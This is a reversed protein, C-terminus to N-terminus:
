LAVSQGHDILWERILRELGDIDLAHDVDVIEGDIYATEPRDRLRRTVGAALDYLVKDLREQLRSPDLGDHMLGQWRDELIARDIPQKRVRAFDIDDPREGWRYRVRIDPGDADEITEVTRKYAQTTETPSMAGEM